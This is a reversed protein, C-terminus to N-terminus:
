DLLDLASSDEIAAWLRALMLKSLQLGRGSEFDLTSSIIGLFTVMDLLGWRFDETCEVASYGPVGCAALAECYTEILADQCRRRVDAELSGAMFYAIDYAGRGARVAQWDILKVKLRGFESDFFINDLRVDGHVLTTPASGLRRKVEAVFETM